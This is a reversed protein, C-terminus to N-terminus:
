PDLILSCCTVAGEAKALESVDVSQLHMGRRLLKEATRPFAAPYVLTGGVPLANAAHPEEPDVALLECNEFAESPIWDPNVLLLGDAIATAASKLHLCGSVVVPEVAYGHPALLVRMQEVGARNTRGSVGVFVRRGMVLVDGGDMTGPPEIPALARHRRLAREVVPVEPRRSRAGPRTVIALEDFVVAIDEIFVADALDPEAPLREVRCDLGALAREYAEHQARAKAVDIPVRPLYTLEGRAFADTVDRTLAVRMSVAM